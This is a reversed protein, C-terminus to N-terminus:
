GVVGENTFLGKVVVDRGDQLRARHVQGVSATALPRRDFAAFLEEVPAGFDEEVTRAVAEFPM